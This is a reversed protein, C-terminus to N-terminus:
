GPADFHAARADAEDRESCACAPRAAANRAGVRTPLSDALERLLTKLAARRMVRRSGAERQVCAVYGLRPEIIVHPGGHSRLDIDIPQRDDPLAERDQIGAEREAQARQEARLWRVNAALQHRRSKRNQM